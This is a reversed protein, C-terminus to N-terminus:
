NIIRLEPLAKFYESHLSQFSSLPPTLSNRWGPASLILCKNGESPSKEELVTDRARM